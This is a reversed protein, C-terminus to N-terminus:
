FTVLIVSRWRELSFILESKDEKVRIAHFNFPYSEFVSLYIRIDTPEWLHLSAHGVRLTLCFVCM